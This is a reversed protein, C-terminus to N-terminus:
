LKVMKNGQQALKIVQYPEYSSENKFQKELQKQEMKSPVVQRYDNYASKVASALVGDKNEYALEVQQFFKIVTNIEDINWDSMIPYQYNENM